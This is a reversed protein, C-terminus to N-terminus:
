SVSPRNVHLLGEEDFFGRDGTKLFGDSLPSRDVRGKRWYGSFLLPGGIALSGEEGRAAPRGAGDLVGVDALLGPRGCARPNEDRPGLSVVGGAENQAWVNFLRPGDYREPPPLREAGELLLAARLTAAANKRASRAESIDAMMAGDAAMVTVREKEVAALLSAPYGDEPIVVCGGAHLVALALVLQPLSSFPLAALCVDDPSLSLAATIQMAACLINRHSLVALRLKRSSAARAPAILFPDDGQAHHRGYGREDLCSDLCLFAEERPSFSLLRGTPVGAACLEVVAREREPDVVTAAPTTEELIARLHEDMLDGPVPVLAADLAASAEVLWLSRHCNRAALVVRSGPCVGQAFLGAACADVERLYEEFGTKRDGCVLATKGPYLLANRRIVDYATFCHSTM